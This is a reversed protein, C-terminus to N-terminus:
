RLFTLVTVEDTSPVFTTECVVQGDLDTLRARRATDPAAVVTSLGRHLSSMWGSDVHSGRWAASLRLPQGAADMVTLNLNAQAFHPAEVRLRILRQLLVEVRRRDGAARQHRTAVYGQKTIHLEIDGAPLDGLHFSGNPGSVASASRPLSRTVTAMMTSTEFVPVTAVIQAGSVHNGRSDTVVGRITTSDRVVNIELRHARDPLLPETTTAFGSEPHIVSLRHTRPLVGEIEFRGTEDTRAHVGWRNSAPAAEAFRGATHDLLTPRQLTVVLGPQPRGQRDVVVGSLVHTPRQLLVDRRLEWGRAGQTSPAADHTALVYPQYGQKAFLLRVDPSEIVPVQIRYSGDSQSTAMAISDGEAQIQVEALPAGGPARVVGGITLM